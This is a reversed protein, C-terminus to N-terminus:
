HSVFRAAFDHIKLHTNVCEHKERIMKELRPTRVVATNRFFALAPHSESRKQVLYRNASLMFAQLFPSDVSM